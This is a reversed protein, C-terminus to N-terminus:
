KNHWKQTNTSACKVRAITKPFNVEWGLERGGVGRLRMLGVCRGDWKVM